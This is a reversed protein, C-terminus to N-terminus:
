KCGCKKKKGKMAKKSKKLEEKTIKGDNNADVTEFSEEHAKQFEEKSVSGDKNTDMKEIMKMGRDGKKYSKGKHHSCSVSFVVVALLILIKRM